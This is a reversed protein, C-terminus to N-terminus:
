QLETLKSKTGLSAQMQFMELSMEEWARRFVHEQSAATLCVSAM